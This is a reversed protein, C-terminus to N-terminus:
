NPQDNNLIDVPTQQYIRIIENIAIDIFEQRTPYPTFEICDPNTTTPDAPIGIVLATCLLSKKPRDIYITDGIIKYYYSDSNKFRSSSPRDGQIFQTKTDPHGVFTIIPVNLRTLFKPLKAAFVTECSIVPPCLSKNREELSLCIPTLLTTDIPEYKHAEIYEQHIRTLKNKVLEAVLRVNLKSDDSIPSNNIVGIITRAINYLSNTPSTQNVKAM